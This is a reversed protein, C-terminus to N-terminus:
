KTIVKAGLVGFALGIGVFIILWLNIDLAYCTAKDWDSISADTCTLDERADNIFQKFIPAFAMTLILIITCLMLTYIIIQGRKNKMVM